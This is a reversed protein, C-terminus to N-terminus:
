DPESGWVTFWGGNPMPGGSVGTHVDKTIQREGARGQLQQICDTHMWYRTRGSGINGGSPSIPKASNISFDQSAFYDLAEGPQIGAFRLGELHFVHFLSFGDYMNEFSLDDAHRHIESHYNALFSLYNKKASPKVFAVGSGGLVRMGQQTRNIAQAFRDAKDQYADGNQLTLQDPMTMWAATDQMLPLIENLFPKKDQIM